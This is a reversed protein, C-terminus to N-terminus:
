CTSILQDIQWPVKPLPYAFPAPPDAFLDLRQKLQLHYSNLGMKELNHLVLIRLLFEGLGEVEQQDVEQHDEVQGVVEEM